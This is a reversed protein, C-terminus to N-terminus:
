EDISYWIFINVRNISFVKDMMFEFPIQARIDDIIQIKKM